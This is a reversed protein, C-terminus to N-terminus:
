MRILYVRSGVGWRNEWQYKDLVAEPHDSIYKEIYEIGQPPNMHSFLIWMRGELNDFQERFLKGNERYLPQAYIIENDDDEFYEERYFRFPRLSGYYVYVQDEPQKHQDIYALSPRIHERMPPVRWFNGAWEQLRSSILLTIVLMVVVQFTRIRAWSVTAYIGYAMFFVLMPTLYLILRKDFPYLELASLAIHLLLPLIFVLVWAKRKWIAAAIGLLFFASFWGIKEGPGLLQQWLEIKERAFWAFFEEWSGAPVFHAAWYGRMHEAYPHDHIFFYYNVLFSIGWFSYPILLRFLRGMDRKFILHVLSSLGVVFMALVTVNSLWLLIAGALGTLVLRSTTLASKHLFEFYIWFVAVFVFVDLSYQKLENAYYILPYPLAMLWTAVMAVRINIVRKVLFFFLVLAGISALLPVLRLAYENMGFLRTSLEELYLFGIPAVQNYELPKLLEAFGREKINVALATEDLWLSRGALYQRLRLAAGLILIPLAWIISPIPQLLKTIRADSQILRSSFLKFYSKFRSFNFIGAV